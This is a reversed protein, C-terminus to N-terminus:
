LVRVYENSLPTYFYEVACVIGHFLTQVTFTNGTIHKTTLQYLRHPAIEFIARSHLWIWDVRIGKASTTTCIKNWIQLTPSATEGQM